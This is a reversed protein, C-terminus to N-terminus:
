EPEIGAARASIKWAEIQEGLFKGLAEPTSPALIFGQKGLTEIVEPEKLIELFEKNLRAVLEKPMNAPGFMGGWSTITYQPLGAEYITPVDPLGPYREKLTTVIARLKGANVHSLGTTLTAIMLDIRGALLDVLAQPEGKYPVHVMKIDAMAAIQSAGVSGTTNGSGYSLKGPNAKAYAILEGLTRVPVAPHAYLFFTYYGVMTIPTFDKVPDYPVSKRLAPAAAIPSNSAFFLTHGDPASKAVDSGAIMGDAGPKNDVIVPQGLKESLRKGITRVLVDSATGAAGFTVFRIPRNPYDQGLASTSILLVTVMALLARM